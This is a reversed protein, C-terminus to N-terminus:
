AIKELSKNIKKTLKVSEPTLFAKKLYEDFVRDSDVELTVINKSAIFRELFIKVIMNLSLGMGQAKQYAHKKLIAPLRFNIQTTQTM